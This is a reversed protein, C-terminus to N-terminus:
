LVSICPWVGFDFVGCGFSLFWVFGFGMSAFLGM